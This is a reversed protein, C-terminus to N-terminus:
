GSSGKGSIVGLVNQIIVAIIPFIGASTAKFSKTSTIRGWADQAEKIEGLGANLSRSGVIYGIIVGLFTGVVTDM